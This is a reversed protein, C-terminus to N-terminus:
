RTDSEGTGDPEDTGIPLTLQWPHRFTRPRYRPAPTAPFAKPAPGREARAVLEPCSAATGENAAARHTHFLAIICRKLVNDNTLHARPLLGDTPLLNIM